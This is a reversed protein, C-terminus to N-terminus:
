RIHGAYFAIGMFRLWPLREISQALGVIDQPQVGVRGLGVDLEALVGIEVQVQRAADSLQRAVFHRTQPEVFVTPGCISVGWMRGNDRACMADLEHFATMLTAIAIAALM